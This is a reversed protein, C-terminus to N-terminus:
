ILTIVEFDPDYLIEASRAGLVLLLVIFWKAM